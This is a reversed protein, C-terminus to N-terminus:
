ALKYTESRTSPALGTAAIDASRSDWLNDNSAVIVGAAGHLELIPDALPVLASEALSPGYARIVVKRAKTGSIIFGGIFSTVDEGLFPPPIEARTSTSCFASPAPTGPVAALLLIVSCIFSRKMLRTTPSCASARLRRDHYNTFALSLPGRDDLLSTPVRRARSDKM